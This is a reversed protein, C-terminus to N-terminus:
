SDHGQAGPDESKSRDRAAEQEHERMGTDYLIRAMRDLESEEEKYVDESLVLTNTGRLDSAVAILYAGYWPRHAIVFGPVLIKEGGEKSERVVLVLDGVTLAM